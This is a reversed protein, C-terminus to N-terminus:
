RRAFKVGLLNMASVNGATDLSFQAQEDSMRREGRLDFTDFHYHELALDFSSWNLTLRGNELSVRAVGYAPDEYVGAYAALERSPKTDRRRNREHAEEREKRAAETREEQAMAAGNWDRKPLGLALDAISQGVAQAAWSVDLNTLVVIGIRDNPLLMLFAHFGKVGGTHSLQLHGRYDSAYWGMAYSRFMQDPWEKQRVLIQPTHTEMLNKTSVLRKGAFAGDGLQFRVWQSMDRVGAKISGAPRIMKDDQFWSTVEAKGGGGKLHPSAHDAAQQAETSTIRVGSMGLPEFIRERVFEQWPRGAAHALSYGAANYMTNQYHFQARFPYSLPVKGTRRIAEELSWPTDMWLLDHRELGTRHTVLDRITVSEDALPDALHFYDLHKRVPDDWDMKREDVLMAISTTTFAKTLSGICFLSDPTVPERGGLERVGHGKLYVVHDDKVIAVGAGPTHSAALAERVIADIAASDITQAAGQSVLGAVLALAFIKM